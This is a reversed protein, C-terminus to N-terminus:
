DIIIDHGSSVPSLFHVNHNVSVKENTAIRCLWAPFPIRRWRFRGLHRFASFFVNSTIDQAAAHDLTSHYVYRIIEPHYKDFLQGAAAADSQAASM